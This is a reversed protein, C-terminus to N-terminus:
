EPLEPLGFQRRVENNDTVRGAESDALGEEIDQIISAEYALDKWSATSPLRDILEHAQQKFSPVSATM